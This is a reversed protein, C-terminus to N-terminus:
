VDFMAPQTTAPARNLEDILIHNSFIPRHKSNSASDKLAYVPPGILDTPMLDPTFQIRAFDSSIPKSLMRSLLTKAIGPVGEILVHGYTFLSILYLDISESHGVIVKQVEQRIQNVKQNFTILEAGDIRQPDPLNQEEM